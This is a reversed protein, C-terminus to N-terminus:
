HNKIMTGGFCNIPRIPQLIRAPITHQQNKHSLFITIQIFITIAQFFKSFVLLHILPKIAPITHQQYGGACISTALCSGGDIPTRGVASKSLKYRHIHLM